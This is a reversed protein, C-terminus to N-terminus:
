NGGLLNVIWERTVPISFLVICIAGFLLVWKMAKVISTSVTGLGDFFSRIGDFFLLMSLVFVNPVYTYKMKELKDKYMDWKAAKNRATHEAKQEKNIQKQEKELRKAEANLVILKNRIEQKRVKNDAEKEQVSLSVRETDVEMAKDTIKAISEAHKELIKTSNIKESAEDLIKQQVKDVVGDISLVTNQIINLPNTNAEIIQGADKTEKSESENNSYQEEFDKIVKDLDM